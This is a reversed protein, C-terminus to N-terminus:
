VTAHIAAGSITANAEHQTCACHAWLQAARAAAKANPSNWQKTVDKIYDFADLVM